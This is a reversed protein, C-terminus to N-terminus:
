FPIDTPNLADEVARLTRRKVSKEFYDPGFSRAEAETPPRPAPVAGAAHSGRAAAWLDFLRQVEAQELSDGSRSRVHCGDEDAWVRWGDPGLWEIRQPTPTSM